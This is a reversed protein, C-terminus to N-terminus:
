YLTHYVINRSPLLRLDLPGSVTNPLGVELRELTRGNSSLANGRAETVSPKSVAAEAALNKTFSSHSFM